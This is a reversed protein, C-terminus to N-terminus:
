KSHTDVMTYCPDGGQMKRTSLHVNIFAYTDSINSCWNVLRQLVAFVDGVVGAVSVAWCFQWMFYQNDPKSILKKKAVVDPSDASTTKAWNFKIPLELSLSKDVYTANLYSLDNQSFSNTKSVFNIDTNIRVNDGFTQLLIGILISSIENFISLIETM